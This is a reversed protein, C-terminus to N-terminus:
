KPNEHGKDAMAESRGQQANLGMGSREMKVARRRRM